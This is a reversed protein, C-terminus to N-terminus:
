FKCKKGVVVYTEERIQKVYAQGKATTFILDKSRNSFRSLPTASSMFQGCRKSRSSSHTPCGALGM